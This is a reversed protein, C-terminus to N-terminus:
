IRQQKLLDDMVTAMFNSGFLGNNDYSTNQVLRGIIWDRLTAMLGSCGEELGMISMVDVLNLWVYGTMRDTPCYIEPIGLSSSLEVFMLVFLIYNEADFRCRCASSDMFRFELTKRRNNNMHFTNMSFYKHEGAAAIIKESDLMPSNVNKIIDSMSIFQCYRNKRRKEPMISSIAYECKIWWSIIAAINEVSMDHVDVHIHFSCRDDATIRQDSGIAEVVSCVSKIGDIGKMVPTCIEIGCSSDPKLIWTDNNHNNGWKQVFVRNHITQQVLHAVEHIGKPLNGYEYGLPRNRMDFSNIEIEVGFRRNSYCKQNKGM